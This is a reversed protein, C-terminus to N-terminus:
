RPQPPRARERAEVVFDATSVSPARLDVGTLRVTQGQRQVQVASALLEARLDAPLPETGVTAPAQGAPAEALLADAWGPDASSPALVCASLGPVALLIIFVRVM